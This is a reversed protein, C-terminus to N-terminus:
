NNFLHLGTSTLRVKEEGHTELYGGGEGLDSTGPDSDQLDDRRPTQLNCVHECPNYCASWRKGSDFIHKQASLEETASLEDLRSEVRLRLGPNGSHMMWM